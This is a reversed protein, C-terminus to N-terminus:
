QWCFNATCLAEQWIRGTSWDVFFRGSFMAHVFRLSLKRRDDAQRNLLREMLLLGPIIPNQGQHIANTDGVAATFERIEMASIAVVEADPLLWKSESQPVAQTKKQVHGLLMTVQLVEQQCCCRVTMLGHRDQLIERAPVLPGQGSQKWWEARMIVAGRYREGQLGALIQALERLHNMYSIGGAFVEM